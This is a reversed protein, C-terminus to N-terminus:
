RAYMVTAAIVLAAGAIFSTSPAFGLFTASVLTSLLISISTAFGKAINDAFKVVVAVLLGGLSVDLVVLVLPPSYGAFFGRETVDDWDSAWVGLAGFLVGFMGLQVNRLWLSIPAAATTDKAKLIKEFYVGAFGSTCCASIVALLGVLPNSDDSVDQAQSRAQAADVTSATGEGEAFQSAQVLAAGCGLVFLSAWKWRTLQRGLMTVSFIATTLIKLQYLVSASAADLNHTAVYLLNNQLTYLAGPVALKLSDMPNDCTVRRISRWADAVSLDDLWVLGIAAVVTKCAEQLVVATSPAYRFAPTAAALMHTHRMLLMQSCNQVALLALVVARAQWANLGCPFGGGPAPGSASVNAKATRISAPAAAQAGPVAAQADGQGGSGGGGVRGEETSMGRGLAFWIPDANASRPPPEHAAAACAAAPVARGM